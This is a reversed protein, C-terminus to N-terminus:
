GTRSSAKAIVHPQDFLMGTVSPRRQLIAALLAGYSGGIDALTRVSSLDYAAVIERAIRGADEHFTRNFSEDLDPARMRYNWVSDGFVRHFAAEGTMVSHRLNGWALYNEGSRVARGRVAHPKREQLWTGLRTIRFRGDAEEECIGYM